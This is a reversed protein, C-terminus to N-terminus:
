EFQLTDAPNTLATRMSIYSVTISTLVFTILFALSFVQWGLPIRYAYNSLWFEMGMYALPAAFVFAIFTLIFFRRSFIYLIQGYSAGLVKRIGIEKVKRNSMFSVLGYLGLCGILIAIFAFIRISKLMINEVLYADMMHDDVTDFEFSRTPFVELWLARLKPLVAVLQDPHVALNANNVQNRWPFMVMPEIIQDLKDIHFDKTVGVIRAQVGYCKIQKGIAEEPSNVELRKILAENVIFADISDNYEDSRFNRGAVLEIDFNELFRHDVFKNRVRMDGKDEHGVERFSTSYRGADMPPGSSLSFSSVEPMAELGQVLRDVEQSSPKYTTVTIINEKQFGLDKNIFYNMQRAIVITGIILVQTIVFQTIVLIQRLGLGNKKENLLSFGSRLSESPEFSSLRYAPYIGAVLSVVFILGIGFIISAGTLQVNMRVISLLGNWGDLALETIWLALIFSIFTLIFTEILFQVILQRRTGGMVKRIGVEKSRNIAQATQLNIFNICASLMIFLGVAIFGISMSKPSTYNGSFGWGESTHLKKLNLLSYSTIAADEESRYKKVLGPFRQDITNPDMGIPLVAFTLGASINGWNDRDWENLQYYIESSVLLEFPLNSNSPPNEVVGSIYVRLSDFIGMEVGLLEIERGVYDPYYKEVQKSSLVIANRSDMATRPNGAIFDYDFYKLFVSDAYFMNFREEFVKESQTGPEIGILADNPGIVQFVNELEPFENRMAKILMSQTNGNRNVRNPYNQTVNVRYIQNAKPQDVDFSGEYMEQVFLFMISSLGLTLGLINIFSSIRNKWLNRLISNFYTKLM